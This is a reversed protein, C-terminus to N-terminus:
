DHSKESRAEAAFHRAAEIRPRVHYPTAIWRRDIGDLYVKIRKRMHDQTRTTILGDHKMGYVISCLGGCSEYAINDFIPMKGTMELTDAIAEWAQAETWM